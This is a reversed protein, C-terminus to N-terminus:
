SFITIKRSQCVDEFDERNFTVLGEVNLQTDELMQRITVDVLSLPRSSELTIKVASERYPEDNVWKVNSRYILQNFAQKARWKRTFGTWLVEYLIPYPLVITQTDLFDALEIAKHYQDFQDNPTYLAFWFGTDTLILAM